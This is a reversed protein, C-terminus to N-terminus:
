AWAQEIIERFVRDLSGSTPESAPLESEHAEHRKLESEIFDSIAPIRPGLGLELGAKKQEVLDAIVRRIAADPLMAEVLKAFETPVIGKGAEIWRVALIPRLVYFYKKQRVQNGRMLDKFNGRAMHLYHYMCARPSYHEPLLARLKDAIGPREFYVIPSGLWELLPPNSKRLLQLTKRIDWGGLDINEILPREIVDRKREIWVSLYWDRPRVYIFRVDYDSDQSWFGWARSGSECAYLIRIGEDAEVQKLLNCISTHM